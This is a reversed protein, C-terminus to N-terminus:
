VHARGIEPQAARAAAVARDIDEVGARSVKGLLDGTAPNRSEILDGVPSSWEGGIFLGFEGSHRDLWEGVKDAAEPAPGYGMTKFAEAVDM